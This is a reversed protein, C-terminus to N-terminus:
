TSACIRLAFAYLVRKWELKAQLPWAQRWLKAFKDHFSRQFNDSLQRELFEPIVLTRQWGARFFHQAYILHGGQKMKSRDLEDDSVDAMRKSPNGHTVAVIKPFCLQPGM